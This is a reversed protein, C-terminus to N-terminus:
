IRRNFLRPLPLSLLLLLLQLIGCDLSMCGDSVIRLIFYEVDAFGYDDALFFVACATTRMYHHQVCLESCRINPAPLLHKAGLHPKLARCSILTQLVVLVFLVLSIM